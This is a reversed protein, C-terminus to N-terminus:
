CRIKDARPKEKERQFDEGMMLLVVKRQKAKGGLM